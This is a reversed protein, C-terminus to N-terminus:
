KEKRYLNMKRTLADKDGGADIAQQLYDLAKQREGVEMFIDAAHEFEVSSISDEPSNRLTAEIYIKAEAYRGQKYLVWAYTDLFTANNPETKVAKSSMEEAKKLDGGEQALFYAYNNLTMAHDPKWQLCSDFAAYAKDNEGNTHYIEGMIAYFDSVINPNSKDNIEATGRQFADLAGKDDKQYYRALGTFYYFAMEDPNYLMGQEALAAITTWDETAWKNQILQFRASANDPALRLLRVLATDIQEEPLKKLQYYAVRMEALSADKPVVQSMRDM